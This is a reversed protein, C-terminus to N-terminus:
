RHQHFTQRKPATTVSEHRLCSLLSTRIRRDLLEGSVLREASDLRICVHWHQRLQLPLLPNPAATGVVLLGNVNAFYRPQPHLTVPVTAPPSPADITLAKKKPEAKLPLGLCDRHEKGMLLCSCSRLVQDLTRISSSFM